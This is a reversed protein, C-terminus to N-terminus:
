ALHPLFLKNSQWRIVNDKKVLQPTLYILTLKKLPQVTKDKSKTQYVKLFLSSQHVAIKLRKLPRSIEKEYHQLDALLNMTFRDKERLM